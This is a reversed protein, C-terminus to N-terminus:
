ATPRTSRACSRRSRSRATTPSRSPSRRAGQRAGPRRPRRPRHARDRLAEHPPSTSAPSSSRPRSRHLPDPAAAPGGLRGDPVAVLAGRERRLAGVRRRRPHRHGAPDRHRRRHRRGRGRRHAAEDAPLAAAPGEVRPRPGRGHRAPVDIESDTDSPTAPWPGCTPAPASTAARRRHPHDCRIDDDACAEVMADYMRVLMAGTLANFRKPRNMTIVMTHGDREVLADPMSRSGRALVEHSPRVRGCLHKRMRLYSAIGSDPPVATRVGIQSRSPM